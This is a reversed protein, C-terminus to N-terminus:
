ISKAKSNIKWLAGIYAAAGVLFGGLLFLAIKKNRADDLQEQSICKNNSGCLETKCEYAEECRAGGSKLVKWGNVSCYFEGGVSLNTREGINECIRVQELCSGEVCTLGTSCGCDAICTGCDERNECVGDGCVVKHPCDNDNTEDCWSPCAGDGDECTGIVSYLCIRPNADTGYGECRAVQGSKKPCNYAYSCENNKSCDTDADGIYGAECGVPCFDDEDDCATKPEYQCIGENNSDGTCEDVTGPDGDDCDRQKHCPEFCDNDNLWLCTDPCCGDGDKCASVNIQSDDNDCSRPWGTCMNITCSNEDDCDADDDCYHRWMVTMNIQARRDDQDGVYFTELVQIKVGEISRTGSVAGKTTNDVSVMISGSDSVSLLRVVRGYHDMTEGVGITEIESDFAASAVPIIFLILLLRMSKM